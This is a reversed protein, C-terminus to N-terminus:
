IGADKMELQKMGKETKILLDKAESIVAPNAGVKDAGNACKRLRDLSSQLKNFSVSHEWIYEGGEPPLPFTETEVIHGVDDPGWYEPPVEGNPPYKVVPVARIARSMELEANMRALRSSAEKILIDAGDNEVAKEMFSKIKLMDQEELDTAKTVNAVRQISTDLLVEIQSRTVIDRAQQLISKDVFLSEGKVIARELLVIHQIYQSQNRVPSQKQAEYIASMLDSNAELKYLLRKGESIQEEDLGVGESENFIISANKIIDRVESKGNPNIGRSNEPKSVSLLAMSLKSVKETYSNLNNIHMQNRDESSMTTFQEMAATLIERCKSNAAMNVPLNKYLNYVYPNAGDNVLVQLVESHGSAAALHLSNNGMDDLDDPSYGETLLLWVTRLHGEYAAWLLPTNKMLYEYSAHDIEGLDENAGPFTSHSDSELSMLFNKRDNYPGAAGKELVKQLVKANGHKAAWHLASWKVKPNDVDIPVGEAFLLLALNINNNKIADYLDQKKLAPDPKDYEEQSLSDEELTEEM